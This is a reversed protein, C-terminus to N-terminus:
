KKQLKRAEAKAFRGFKLFHITQRIVEADDMIFTHDCPVVLFDAMGQLKASEVSVKGDDPGPIEEAFYGDYFAPRNGTIVGASFDAAGLRLPLSDKDTGLQQGAPGNLWQFLINDRLLDVIESGHNPPSLLVSHGLGAIKRVSLYYRLLIGGMSHTVFHIRRSGRQRCRSLAQPISNLALAEISQERSPYDQNVVMFHERGLADAMDRLSASSRGLGHLLIVCDRDSGAERSNEQQASASCAAMAALLFLILAQPTISYLSM